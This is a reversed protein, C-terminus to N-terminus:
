SGDDDEESLHHGVVLSARKLITDRAPSQVSLGASVISSSPLAERRM